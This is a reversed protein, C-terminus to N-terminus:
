PATESRADGQGRDYGEIGGEFWCHTALQLMALDVSMGDAVNKRADQLLAELIPNEPSPWPPEPMKATRQTAWDGRRMDQEWTYTQAAEWAEQRDM